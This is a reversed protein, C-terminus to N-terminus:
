LNFKKTELEMDLENMFEETVEDVIFWLYIGFNSQKYKMTYELNDFKKLFDYLRDKKMPRFDTEITLYIKGDESYMYIDTADYREMLVERYKKFPAYSKRENLRRIRM